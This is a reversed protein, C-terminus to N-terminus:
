KPNKINNNDIVIYNKKRGHGEEDREKHQTNDDLLGDGGCAMHFTFINFCYVLSVLVYFGHFIFIYM